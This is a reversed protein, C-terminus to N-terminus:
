WFAPYGVHMDILLTHYLAPVGEVKVKSVVNSFKGTVQMTTKVTDQQKTSIISQFLSHSKWNIAFFVIM